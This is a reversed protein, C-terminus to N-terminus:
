RAHEDVIRTVESPCINCKGCLRHEAVFTLAASLRPQIKVSPRTARLVPDHWDEFEVQHRASSVTCHLKATGVFGTESDGLPVIVEFSGCGDSSAFKCNKCDILIGQKKLEMFHDRMHIARSILGQGYRLRDDCM